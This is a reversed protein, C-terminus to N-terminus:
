KNPYLDEWCPEFNQCLECGLDMNEPGLKQCHPCENLEDDTFSKHCDVCFFGDKLDLLNDSSCYCHVDTNRELLNNKIKSLLYSWEYLHFCKSCKANKSSLMNTTNCKECTYFINILEYGCVECALKFITGDEYKPTLCSKFECRSCQVLRQERDQSIKKLLPKIHQYAITFYETNNSSIISYIQNVQQQYTRFENIWIKTLYHNLIYWGHLQDTILEGKAIQEDENQYFHIWKNRHKKITELKNKHNQELPLKITVKLIECLDEFNKSVFNNKLFKTLNPHPTKVVLTWHEKCVRAKLLLEIGSWFHIYSYKPKTKIENAATELFDLANIILKHIQQEVKNM